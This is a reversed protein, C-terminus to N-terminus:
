CRPRPTIAISLKRRCRGSRCRTTPRPRCYVLGRSRHREIAEAPTIVDIWEERELADVFRQLWGEDYCRQRTGPWVGFKEGDDGLVAMRDPGGEAVRRLIAITDEPEGFPIAYRLERHIPFVTLREGQDETVFRGWLEEREVGAAVFHADDIATYEV